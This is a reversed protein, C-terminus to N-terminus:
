DVKRIRNNKTPADRFGKWAIKNKEKNLRGLNKWEKELDNCKITLHKWEDHSHIVSKTLDEIKECLKNKEILIKKEKNKKSLFYDNRKKAISFPFSWASIQM